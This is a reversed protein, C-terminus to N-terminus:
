GAVVRIMSHLRRPALELWQLVDAIPLSFDGPARVDDICHARRDIAQTSSQM